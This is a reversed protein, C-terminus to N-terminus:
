SKLIALIKGAIFKYSDPRRTDGIVRVTSNIASAASDSDDIPAFSDAAYYVVDTADSPIQDDYNDLVDLAKRRINGFQRPTGGSKLLKIVENVIAFVDSHETKDVKSKVLELVKILILSKKKELNSGVKIAKLFRLPWRQSEGNELGEFVYDEIHALWEPIGLEDEYANHSGSHVTCGVACGKGDEWYFGKILEDARAHARVRKLYKRKISEKGHFARLIKKKM